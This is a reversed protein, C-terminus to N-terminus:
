APFEGYEERALKASEEPSASRASKATFELSDARDRQAKVVLFERRSIWAAVVKRARFVRLPVRPILTKRTYTRYEYAEM